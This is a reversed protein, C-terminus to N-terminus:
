AEWQLIHTSMHIRLYLLKKSNTCMIASNNNM